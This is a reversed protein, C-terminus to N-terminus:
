PHKRLTSFQAICLLRDFIFLGKQKASQDLFVRQKQSWTGKVPNM